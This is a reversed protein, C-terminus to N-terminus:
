TQENKSRLLQEIARAAHTLTIQTSTATYQGFGMVNAIDEDTLGVWERAKPRSEHLKKMKEMYKETMRCVYVGDERLWRLFGNPFNIEEYPKM